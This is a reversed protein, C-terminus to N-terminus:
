IIIELEEVGAIEYEKFPFYETMVIWNNVKNSLSNQNNELKVLLIDIDITVQKLSSEETDRQRGCQDELKKFGQQLQILTMSENLVLHVCQNIYDPKPQEQTATIDPNQLATSLRLQGLETLSKRVQPLYYEAQFNSGLGLVVATVQLFQLQEFSQRELYEINLRAVNSNNM